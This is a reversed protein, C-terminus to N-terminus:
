HPLVVFRGEFASVIKGNSTDVLVSGVNVRARQGDKLAALAHWSDKTNPLSMMLPAQTMPQPYHIDGHALVIDGEVGLSQMQWWVSGWATLTALAYHSGAFLTGHLNSNNDFPAQCILQESNFAQARLGMFKAMPITQHWLTTLRAAKEAGEGALAIQMKFHPIQGYLLHSPGLLEFGARQYFPLAAERANLEIKNLGLSDALALLGRLIMGGLGKGQQGPAVAMYRIQGIGPASEHLRGTAIVQDQDKVMLNWADAELEDRESGPPQQWPARLVQWRLQYCADFDISTLPACLQM